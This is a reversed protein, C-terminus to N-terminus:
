PAPIKRPILLWGSFMKCPGEFSNYKYLSQADTNLQKAVDEASLNTGIAQYLEFPPFNSVDVTGVPIVIIWDEWVPM